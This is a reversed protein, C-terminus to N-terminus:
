PAMLFPELHHELSSQNKLSGNWTRQSCFQNLLSGLYNKFLEDSYITRQFVLVHVSNDVVNKNLKRWTCFLLLVKPSGCSFRLLVESSGWSLWQLVVPSVWFFWLLLVLSGCSFWLLLVSSGCSFESSYFYGIVSGVFPWLHEVRCCILTMLFRSRFLFM